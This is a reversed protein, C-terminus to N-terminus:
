RKYSLEARKWISIYRIYFIAVQHCGQHKNVDVNTSSCGMHFIEPNNNKRKKTQLFFSITLLLILPNRLKVAPPHLSTYTM